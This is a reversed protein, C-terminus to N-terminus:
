ACNDEILIVQTSGGQGGWGAGVKPSFEPNTHLFTNGTATIPLSWPPVVHTDTVLRFNRMSKMHACLALVQLAVRCTLVVRTQSIWVFAAAHQQAARLTTV